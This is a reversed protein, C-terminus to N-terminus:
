ARIKKILKAGDRWRLLVRAGRKIDVGIDVDRGM